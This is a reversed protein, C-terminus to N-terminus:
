LVSGPLTSFHPSSFDLVKHGPSFLVRQLNVDGGFRLHSFCPRQLHIYSNFHPCVPDPSSRLGATLTRVLGAFVWVCLPSAGHPRLLPLPTCAHGDGSAVPPLCLGGGCWRWQSAPGTLVERSQVRAGTVGLSCADASEAVRSGAEAGAAGPGKCGAWRAASVPPARLRPGM